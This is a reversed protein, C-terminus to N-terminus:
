QFSRHRPTKRGFRYGVRERHRLLEV